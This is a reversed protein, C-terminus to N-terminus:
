GGNTTLWLAGVLAGFLAFWLLAAVLTATDTWEWVPVVTMRHISIGGLHTVHEANRIIIDLVEPPEDIEYRDTLGNGYDITM